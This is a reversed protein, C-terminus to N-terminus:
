LQQPVQPEFAEPELLISEPERLRSELHVGPYGFQHIIKMNGTLLHAPTKYAGEPRQSRTQLTPRYMYKVLLAFSQSIAIGPLAQTLSHEGSQQQEQFLNIKSTLDQSAQTSATRYVRFGGHM